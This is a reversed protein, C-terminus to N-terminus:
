FVNSVVDKEDQVYHGEFINDNNHYLYFAVSRSSCKRSVELLWSATDFILRRCRLSLVQNLGSLSTLLLLVIRCCLGFNKAYSCSFHQFKLM